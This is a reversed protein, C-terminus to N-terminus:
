IRAAHLMRAVPKLDVPKQKKRKTVIDYADLHAVLYRYEFSDLENWLQRDKALAEAIAAVRGWEVETNTGMLRPILDLMKQRDEDDADDNATVALEALNPHVCRPEDTWTARDIWDIVQLICGGHQPSRGAGGILFPVDLSEM